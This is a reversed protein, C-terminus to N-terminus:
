ECASPPSTTSDTAFAVARPQESTNWFWSSCPRVTPMKQEGSGMGMWGPGSSYTACRPWYDQGGGDAVAMWAPRCANMSGIEPTGRAPLKEAPQILQARFKEPNLKPAPKKTIDGRNFPM